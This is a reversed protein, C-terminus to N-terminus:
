RVVPTPGAGIGSIYVNQPNGPWIVRTVKYDPRKM